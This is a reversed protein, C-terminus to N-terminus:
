AGGYKDILIRLEEKQDRELKLMEKYQKIDMHNEIAQTLIGSLVQPRLADVEWSTRGFKAIYDKARPDTVKAPNPPPSYAQIQDWTLAIHEIDMNIAGQSGFEHVREYVDRVMDLGSPDHDGIYIIKADRGDRSFMDYLDKMVTCSGYGRNVLLPIMYKHTIPKLVGSLADKEVIVLLKRPQGIQRDLRYQRLTDDLADAIGTVWYPREPVRLRDELVDWDVIGAMRGEKLLNSLKSYEAQKNPIVARSVLQYYLQRLTMRHGAAAYEEVIANIEELRERSAPRINTKRFEIKM